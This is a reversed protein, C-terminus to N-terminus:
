RPGAAMTDVSSRPIIQTTNLNWLAGYWWSHFQWSGARGIILPFEFEMVSINNDSWFYPFEVKFNTTHMFSDEIFLYHKIIIDM